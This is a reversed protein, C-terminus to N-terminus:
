VRRDFQVTFCIDVDEEECEIAVGVVGVGWITEVNLGMCISYRGNSNVVRNFCTKLMGLHTSEKFSNRNRNGM